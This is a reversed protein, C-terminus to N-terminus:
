NCGCGGRAPKDTPRDNPEDEPREASSPREFPKDSAKRDGVKGRKVAVVDLTSIQAGPPLVADEKVASHARAMAKVESRDLEVGAEALAAVPDDLFAKANAEDKALWASVGANAETLKAVLAPNFPFPRIGHPRDGRPRCAAKPPATLIDKGPVIRISVKADFGPQVTARIPQASTVGAEGAILVEAAPHDSRGENCTGCM